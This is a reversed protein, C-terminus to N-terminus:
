TRKFFLEKGQIAAAVLAVDPRCCGAVVHRQALYLFCLSGPSPLINELSRTRPLLREVLYAEERVLQKVGEGQPLALRLLVVGVWALVDNRPFPNDAGQPGHKSREPDGEPSSHVALVVVELDPWSGVRGVAARPGIGREDLHSGGDLVDIESQG